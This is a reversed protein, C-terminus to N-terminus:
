RGRLTRWVDRLTGPRAGRLDRLPVVEFGRSHLDELIGPLAAPTTRAGPGADHLVIIGGPTVQREVAARVTDPTADPAWDRAEVTWHVGTVGAARQGLVTALSYAGHPPRQCRPRTGTLAEVEHTAQGPDRFATWPLLTWAHRHRHAHPLVEHGEELLRRLLDPHQRGLAPLIFFTAQVGAARLTDLVPPTSRPDPGDDFTLAVQRGAPDGRTIIGLGGRQVLLYPLGIYVAAGAVLGALWRWPRTM